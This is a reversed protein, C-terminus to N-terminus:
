EAELVLPMSIVLLAHLTNQELFLFAELSNM